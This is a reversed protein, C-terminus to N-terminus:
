VSQLDFWEKIAKNNMVYEKFLKRCRYTYKKAMEPSSLKLKLAIEENSLSLKYLSLVKKCHEGLKEIIQNVMSNREENIVQVELSEELDAHIEPILTSFKSLTRLRNFWHQKAIGILYTKLTSGRIFKGERVNRDLIIIADQFVDEGQMEDGQHNIVHNIVWVRLGSAQYLYEFAAERQSRNGLMAEYLEEDTWKQPDKLVKNLNPPYLVRNFFNTELSM